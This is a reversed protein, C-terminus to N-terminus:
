KAAYISLLTNNNTTPERGQDSFNKEPFEPKGREEFVLMELNGMSESFGRSGIQSFSFSHEVVGGWSYADRDYESILVKCM